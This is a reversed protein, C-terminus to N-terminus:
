IVVQTGERDVKDDGKEITSELRMMGEEVESWLYPLLDTRSVLSVRGEQPESDSIPVDVDRRYPNYKAIISNYLLDDDCPEEEEPEEGNWPEDEEPEGISVRKIHAIM